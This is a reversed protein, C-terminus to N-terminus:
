NFELQDTPRSARLFDAEQSTWRDEKIISPPSVRPRPPPMAHRTGGPQERIKEERSLTSTRKYSATKPNRYGMTGLPARSALGEFPLGSGSWTVPAVNPAVHAIPHQALPPTYVAPPLQGPPGGVPQKAPIKYLPRDARNYIPRNNRSSSRATDNFHNVDAYGSKNFGGTARKSVKPNIMPGRTNESITGERPTRSTFSAGPTKEANEEVWRTWAANGVESHAEMGASIIPGSFPSRAEKLEVKAERSASITAKVVTGKREVEKQISPCNTGVRLHPAIATPVTAPLTLNHSLPSEMLCPVSPAASGGATSALIDDNLDMLSLDVAPPAPTLSTTTSSHKFQPPVPPSAYDCDCDLNLISIRSPNRAPLQNALASSTNSPSSRVVLSNNAAQSTATVSDSIHAARSIAGDIWAFVNKNKEIREGEERTPPVPVQAIFGSANHSQSALPIMRPGVGDILLDEEDICSGMFCSQHHATKLSSFGDREMDSGLVSSRNYISLNTPKLLAMDCVDSLYDFCEKFESESKPVQDVLKYDNMISKSRTKTIGSGRKLSQTPILASFPCGVCEVEESPM